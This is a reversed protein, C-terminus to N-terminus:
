IVVPVLCRSMERDAMPSGWHRLESRVVSHAVVMHIPKGDADKLGRFWEREDPRYGRSKEAYWLISDRREAIINFDGCVLALPSVAKVSDFIRRFEAERIVDIKVDIDTLDIL